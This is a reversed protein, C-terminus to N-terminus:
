EFSVKGKSDINTRKDFIFDIYKAEGARAKVPQAVRGFELKDEGFVKLTIQQDFDKEFVLYASLLNDTTSDTGTIIIKGYSLGKSKLADSLVIENSFTKEIGKRAGEAFESGAKSVIEGTKNIGEKTKTKAWNCSFAFFSLLFLFKITKM